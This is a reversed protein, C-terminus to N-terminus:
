SAKTVKNKPTSLFLFYSDAMADFILESGCQSCKKSPASSNNLDEADHNTNLIQEQDGHNECVYPAYFSVVRGNGISEPVMNFQDVMAISCNTFQIKGNKGLDRVFFVWERVGCSNFNTVGALDLTITPATIRPVEAHKFADGVNGKFKYLASNGEQSISVTLDGMIIEKTM